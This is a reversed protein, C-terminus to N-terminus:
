SVSPFPVVGTEDSLYLVRKYQKWITIPHIGSIVADLNARPGVWGGVWYTSSPPEKGSPLTVSTYLQGNVEM